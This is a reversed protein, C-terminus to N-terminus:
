FPIDDDLDGQTAAPKSAPATRAPPARRQTPEEGGDDDRADSRDLLQLSDVVIETSYHTVGDKEYKRTQLRGEFYAKKGKSLYKEAIEAKRGFLVLRHWETKEQQEGAKNKWKETTAISINAVADGATTYKVDPDKGLHGILIVKNVSSM